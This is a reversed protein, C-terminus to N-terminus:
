LERWSRIPIQGRQQSESGGYIVLAKERPCDALDCWKILEEVMETQVTAASKIEVPLLGNGEELLCDVELGLKDRWFYVNPPLCKHYRQKLFDSVIMSEFLGGRLYHTYLDEAKTLQLLNCALATDYFYLKPMKILRKSFNKHHPQLFFLIYCSELISLWSKVTALALGAETALATLNLLQGTRAACLRMFRQFDTLSAIQKIDRVDREIYTRIYSEAFVVPDMPHHYPRPYFGRFVAETASSPLAGAERLEGISLPLLTTIAVRGALTQSIQQNLLINQSGTIV